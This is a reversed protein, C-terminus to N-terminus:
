GGHTAVDLDEGAFVFLEVTARTAAVLGVGAEPDGGDEDDEYAGQKAREEGDDRSPCFPQALPKRLPDKVRGLVKTAPNDHTDARMEM